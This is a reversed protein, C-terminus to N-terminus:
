PEPAARMIGTVGPCALSPTGVQPRRPPRLSWPTRASSAQPPPQPPCLPPHPLSRRTRSPSLLPLPAPSRIARRWRPRPHRPPPLPRPLTPGTPRRRQGAMPRRQPLPRRLGTYVSQASDQPRCPAAQPPRTRRALLQATHHLSPSRVLLFDSKSGVSSQSVPASFDFKSALPVYTAHTVCAKRLHESCRAPHPLALGNPSADLVTSLARGSRTSLTCHPTLHLPLSM